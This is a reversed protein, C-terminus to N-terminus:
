VMLGLNLFILGKKVFDQATNIIDEEKEQLIPIAIKTQSIM